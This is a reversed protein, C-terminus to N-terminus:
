FPRGLAVPSKGGKKKAEPCRNLVHDKINERKVDQGCHPCKVYSNNTNLAFTTTQKKGSNVAESIDKMVEKSQEIFPKLMSLTLGFGASMFIESGLTFYVLTILFTSIFIKWDHFIRADGRYWVDAAFDVILFAVAAWIAWRFKKTDSLFMYTFVIQAIQPALSMTMYTFAWTAPVLGLEQELMQVGMYSSYTDEIFHNIGIILMLLSSVFVIIALYSESFLKNTRMYHFINNM